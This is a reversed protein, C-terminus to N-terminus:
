FGEVNLLVNTWRLDSLSEFYLWFETPLSAFIMFRNETPQVNQIPIKQM